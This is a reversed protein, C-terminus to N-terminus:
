FFFSLFFGRVHVRKKKFCLNQEVNFTVGFCQLTISTQTRRIKFDNTGNNGVRHSVKVYCCSYGRKRVVSKNFIIRFSILTRLLLM